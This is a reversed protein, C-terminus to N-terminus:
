EKDERKPSDGGSAREAQSTKRDVGALAPDPMAVVEGRELAQLASRLQPGHGPRTRGPVDVKAQQCNACAIRSLPAGRVLALFEMCEPCRMKDVLKAM